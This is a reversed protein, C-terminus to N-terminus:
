SHSLIFIPEVVLCDKYVERDKAYSEATKNNYSSFDQIFTFCNRKVNEELSSQSNKFRQKKM